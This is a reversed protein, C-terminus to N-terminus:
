GVNVAEVLHSRDNRKSIFMFEICFQGFDCGFFLYHRPKWARKRSSVAYFFNDTDGFCSPKSVISGMDTSSLDYRYCFKCNFECCLRLKGYGIFNRCCRM